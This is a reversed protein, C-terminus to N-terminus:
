SRADAADLAALIAQIPLRASAVLQAGGRRLAMAFPAAWRNEIVMLVAASNPNIIEGAARVDEDDLLGSAAGDFIALNPGVEVINLRAVSGDAEKAIVVLDLLRVIGRDVLDVFYPLAEGSFHRNPFEICYFDIPGMEDIPGAETSSTGPAASVSM